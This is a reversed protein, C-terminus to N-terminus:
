HDGGSLMEVAHALIPTLLRACGAAGRKSGPLNVLVTAGEETRRSGAFGRSLVATAVEKRSENRLMEAVGPLSRDCVSATVEPTIDRPSLGTGGTTLIVDFDPNELARRIEPAEDPVIIRRVECEGLAERLVDEVAPGSEDTYVGAAARDSVTVVLIRLGGDM